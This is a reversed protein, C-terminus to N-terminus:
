IDDSKIFTNLYTIKSLDNEHLHVLMEYCLQYNFHELRNRRTWRDEIERGKSGAGREVM